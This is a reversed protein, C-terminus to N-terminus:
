GQDDAAEKRDEHFARMRPDFPNHAVGPPGQQELRLWQTMQSTDSAAQNANGENMADARKQAADWINM